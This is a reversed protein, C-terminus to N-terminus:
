PQVQQAPALTLQHLGGQGVMWLRNGSLVAATLHEGQEKQLVQFRGDASGALVSGGQGVLFVRDRDATSGFLTQSLPLPVAQWHHADTSSYAHGRLGFVLLQSDFAQLGFLSGDYEFAQQQWGTGASDSITMLGREGVMIVRGDPLGTIAHIHLGEPNDVRDTWDEWHAGGDRTHLVTGFAGAAWGTSADAFWVDLLASVAEGQSAAAMGDHQVQWHQGGDDTALILAEHGVAWGHRADLFYVATLLRDDPTAAVAWTRGEDNSLLVHGREGVAILRDGARAIDLLLSRAAKPWAADAALGPAMLVMVIAAVIAICRAVTSGQSSM